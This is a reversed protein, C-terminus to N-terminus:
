AQEKTEEKIEKLIIDIDGWEFVEWEKQEDKLSILTLEVDQIKDNDKEKRAIELMYLANEFKDQLTLKDKDSSEKWKKYAKDLWKLWKADWEIKVNNLKSLLWYKKWYFWEDRIDSILSANQERFESSQNKIIKNLTVDMTVLLNDWLSSNPLKVYSEALLLDIKKWEPKSWTETNKFDKYFDTQEFNEITVETWWKVSKLLNSKDKNDLDPINNVFKEVIDVHNENESNLLKEIIANYDEIDIYWNDNLTDVIPLLPSDKLEGLYLIEQEKNYEEETWTDSFDVLSDNHDKQIQNETKTNKDIHNQMEKPLVIKTEKKQTNYLGWWEFKIDEWDLNKLPDTPWEVSEKLWENINYWGAFANM